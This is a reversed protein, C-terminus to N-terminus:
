AHLNNPIEQLLGSQLHAVRTLAKTLKPSVEGGLRTGERSYQHKTM